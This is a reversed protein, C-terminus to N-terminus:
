LSKDGPVVTFGGGTVARVQGAASFTTSGIFSATLGAILITNSMGCITASAAPRDPANTAAAVSYSSIGIVGGALCSGAVVSM